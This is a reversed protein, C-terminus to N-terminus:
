RKHGEKKHRFKTLLLKKDMYAEQKIELKDPSAWEQDQPQIVKFILWSEQVGRRELVMEWLTRGLLDKFLSFETSRFDMTTIRNKAKKGGTPM